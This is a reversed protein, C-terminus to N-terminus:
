RIQNLGVGISWSVVNALIGLLVPHKISITPNKAAQRYLLVEAIVVVVEIPVQMLYRNVEPFIGTLICSTLVALPNTIVNVLVFVIWGRGRVGCPIAVIAELALTLALSIAFMRIIMWAVSMFDGGNCRAYM